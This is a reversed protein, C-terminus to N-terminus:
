REQEALWERVVEHDSFHTKETGIIQYTEHGKGAILVMDGSSLQQLAFRIADRRNGIVEFRSKDIDGTLIDAIIDAANETRPNDDTIIGIDASRNVAEAMLPRKKKDRDGGCGFVTYIKNDTHERLSALVNDLADPTHSYDIIAITNAGLDIPEIRGNVGHLASAKRLLDSLSQGTAYLALAAALVNDVNFRGWVPTQLQETGQYDALHVSLTASIGQASLKVNSVAVYEAFHKVREDQGFVLARKGNKEATKALRYGYDDDGNIVATNVSAFAFLKSKAAFYDAMDHHFDLHDQSLNTFVAVSFAVSAVRHLALAHSSVEMAVGDCYSSLEALIKQVSLADPTTHSLENLHKIDGYGMTGIVGYGSLQAIFNTVSTKGNTGTVGILAQGLQPQYFRKAIASVKENLKDVGIMKHRYNSFRSIDYGTQYVIAGIKRCDADSLYDLGHSHIGQEALFLCGAVLQQSNNTMSKIEIDPITEDTLGNLLVSLRM